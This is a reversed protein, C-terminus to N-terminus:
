GVKWIDEKYPIFLCHYRQLSGACYIVDLFHHPLTMMFTRWSWQSWVGQCWSEQSWSIFSKHLTGPGQEQELEQHRLPYTCWVVMEMLFGLGLCFCSEHEKWTKRVSQGYWEIYMYRWYFRSEGEVPECRIEMRLSALVQKTLGVPGERAGWIWDAEMVLEHSM